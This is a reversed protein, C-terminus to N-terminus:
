NENIKKAIKSIGHNSFSLRNLNLQKNNIHKKFFLYLNKESMHKNFHKIYNKKKLVISNYSQNLNQNIVLIKLNAYLMQWISSGGSTICLDFNFLYKEFNNKHNILKINKGLLTNKKIKNNIIGKIVVFKYIRFEPKNLSKLIKQTYNKSDIGGMYILIKKNKKQKPKIKRIQNLNLVYEPGIYFSKTYKNLNILKKKDVFNQNVIIDASHKKCIDEIVCIKYGLSNLKREMKLSFNPDDIIIYKTSKIKKIEELFNQDSAVIQNSISNKKLTTKFYNNIKNTLFIIKNKHKEKLFKAFNLCRFFHGTGKNKSILTKFIVTM